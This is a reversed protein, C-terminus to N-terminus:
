LQKGQYEGTLSQLFKVILQVDQEIPELGLQHMMMIKVVEELTKASGNHLYPKTLAVNRLSPVKFVFRDQELGTVSYRGLDAARVTKKDDFFPIMVGLKQFMNGGVAKGQHCSICGYQKFLQYGQLEAQSIAEREGKLYRDFRSNPTLLTKEYTVIAHKINEATVGDTFLRNFIKILREDQKLKDVVQQWNSGMEKPNNVPGDAQEMLDLARGNWFQRFQLACNFVSPANVEGQQGKIGTSVVAGDTGGTMLSHCSACSITNDASLRADHFLREGLKVLEPNDIRPVPIPSIPEDGWEEAHLQFIMLFLSLAMVLPKIAYYRCFNSKQPM